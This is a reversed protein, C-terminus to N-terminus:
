VNALLTPNARVEPAILEKLSDQELAAKWWNAVTPGEAIRQLHEM